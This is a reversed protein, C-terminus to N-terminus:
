WESAHATGAGEQVGVRVQLWLAEQERGSGLREPLRRRQAPGSRVYSGIRLLACLKQRRAHGVGSCPPWQARATSFSASTSGSASSTCQNATAVFSGIGGNGM